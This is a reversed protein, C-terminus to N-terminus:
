SEQTVESQRRGLMFSAGTSQFPSCALFSTGLAEVTPALVTAVGEM